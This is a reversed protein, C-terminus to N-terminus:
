TGHSLGRIAFEVTHEVDRRAPREGQLVFAHMRGMALQYVAETDRAPDATPVAALAARLPAKLREDSRQVEDRFQDRLRLSNVVFPRTSSAAQADVAQALIGEVWRRVQGLPTDAKAMVHGLYDVLQQLGDDLVAVLLEDKSAFHRYFAQNSLGAERVIESVRPSVSGTRRMVSFAADLLRRVEDTYTEYRDNLARMARGSSRQEDPHTPVANQM